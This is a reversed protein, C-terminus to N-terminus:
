RSVLEDVEYTVLKQFTSINSQTEIRKRSKVGKWNTPIQLMTSYVPKEGFESRKEHHDNESTARESLSHGNFCRRNVRNTKSRKSVM